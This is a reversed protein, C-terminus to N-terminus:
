NPGYLNRKEITFCCMVTIFCDPFALVISKVPLKQRILLVAEVYLVFHLLLRNLLMNTTLLKM